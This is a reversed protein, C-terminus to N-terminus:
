NQHAVLPLRCRTRKTRLFFCSAPTKPVQCIFDGIHIPCASCACYPGIVSTWTILKDRYLMVKMGHLKDINRLQGMTKETVRKKNSQLPNGESM